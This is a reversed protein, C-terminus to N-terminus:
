RAGSARLAVRVRALLERMGFPKSLYDDAGADLAELVLHEEDHGTLVLIRTVDGRARARRCVEVGSIGPLDLDLLVLSYTASELRLLAEEGTQAVVSDLEYEALSAGLMAATSPEDEVILIPSHATATREV